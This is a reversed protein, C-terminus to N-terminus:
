CIGPIGLLVAQRRGWERGAHLTLSASMRPCSIYSCSLFPPTLHLATRFIHRVHASERLEPRKTEVLKYFPRHVIEIIRVFSRDEKGSLIRHACACGPPNALSHNIVPMLEIHRGPSAVRRHRCRLLLNNNRGRFRNTAGPALPCVAM